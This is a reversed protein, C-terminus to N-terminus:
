TKELLYDGLVLCDMASGLYCDLAHEPLCVVPEGKRNFSTNVVLPVGSLREFEQILRYFRPNARESVTQVRATGDVHTIAPVTPRKEPRVKPALLMYPSPCPLDFFEAAREELVAPAFPRFEERKKVKENLVAKMGEFCPNGLISRNGLARPGFEMRGQFWGVAQNRHIRRATERLLEQESLKRAQLGARQIVKLMERDSAEPGLYAHELPRRGANGQVCHYVGLAAGLAGGADGAAPQIFVEEFPTEALIKRNALCNLAVGGALCLRRSGTERHLARAMKVLVEELLAQLSSALDYHRQEYSAGPARPPGFVEEFRRSWMREGARYSFFRPDLAFSGDERIDVLGRLQSLFRPEGYGALGMTKGEGTNAEFGLYVTVATYLLGLSHPYHMERLIEIREGRGAGMSATAWEGVGDVTLIAAEEFPSPLFASAAHSFHHKLFLVEGEYGLESRLTLPFSLRDKLWLPITRRFSRFSRPFEALHDIIMRYFKLYPKEFLVIADLERFSIGGAQVCFNIAQIPFEGSSKVRTFREEQAAALAAGDRVLCAASDHYFCSIGLVNM